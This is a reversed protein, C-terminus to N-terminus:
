APERVGVPIADVVTLPLGFKAIADEPLHKEFWERDSEPHLVIVLEDPTFTVIEDELAQLPSSDGTGGTVEIGHRYFADIAESLRHEAAPRSSHEDGFLFHNLRSGVLPAIVRIGSHVHGHATLEHVVHEGDCEAAILVLVRRPSDSTYPTGM